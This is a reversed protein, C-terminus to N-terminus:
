PKIQGGSTPGGSTRPHALRYEDMERGEYPRTEGGTRGFFIRTKGHKDVNVYYWDPPRGVRIVCLEINETLEVPYYEVWGDINGDIIKRLKGSLLRQYADWDKRNRNGYEFRVGIAAAREGFTRLSPFREGLQTMSYGNLQVAGVIVTGGAANLMGAIAKAVDRVTEEEPRQDRTRGLYHNLDTFSSAKLELDDGEAKRLLTEVEEV